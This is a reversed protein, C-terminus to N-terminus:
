LIEYSGLRAGMGNFGAHVHGALEIPQMNQGRFASRSRNGGTVLDVLGAADKIGVADREIALGVVSDESLTFRGVRARRRRALASADLLALCETKKISQAKVGVIDSGIDGIM